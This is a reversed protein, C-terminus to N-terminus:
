TGAPNAAPSWRCAGLETRFILQDDQDTRGREAVGLVVHEAREAQPQHEVHHLQNGLRPRHAGLRSLLGSLSRGPTACANASGHLREASGCLAKQGMQRVPPVPPRPPIPMRPVTPHTLVAAALTVLSAVIALGTLHIAQALFPGAV